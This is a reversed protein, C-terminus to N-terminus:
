CGGHADPMLAGAVTVPLKMATAMQNLAGQEIASAGYIEYSREETSLVITEDAPRLFESALPLLLEDNIFLSPNDIVRKLLALQEEATMNAYHKEGIELALGITKGEAYGIEKLDNGTLKM